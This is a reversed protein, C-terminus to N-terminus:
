PERRRTGGDRIEGDRRCGPDVVALAPLPFVALRQKQPAVDPTLGGLIHGFAQGAAGPHDDGSPELLTGELRTFAFLAGHDLDLDVLDTGRKPVGRGLDVFGAATAASATAEATAAASTAAPSGTGCRRLRTTSGSGAAVVRPPTGRS